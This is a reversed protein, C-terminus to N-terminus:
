ELVSPPKLETSVPAPRVPCDSGLMQTQLGAGWRPGGLVQARPHAGLIAARPKRVGVPMLSPGWTWSAPQRIEGLRWSSGAQRIVHTTGSHETPSAAAKM